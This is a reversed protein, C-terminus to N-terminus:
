AAGAPSVDELLQKLSREVVRRNHEGTVVLWPAADSEIAALSEGVVEESSMWLKDPVQDVDFGRFSDRSHIETRTYGPCLCQVRLGAAAVEERLSRSFSILFAKSAAYSAVGPLSALGGISSVNIVDGRGRELMAPLAARTLALTAEQHLRLMQMEEDLVSEAFPGATSFGANNILLDLAPGQRIAEVVRAQGESGALDASLVDISCSDALEAALARLREERRAVILMSQCRSALQRVYAEGIGSSAGTILARTWNSM